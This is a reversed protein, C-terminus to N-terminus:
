ATQHEMTRRAIRATVDHSLEGQADIQRYLQDLMALRSAMCAIVVADPRHTGPSILAAATDALNKVERDYAEALLPALDKTWVDPVPKGAVFAALRRVRELKEDDKQDETLRRAGLGLTRLIFGPERKEAPRPRRSPGIEAM